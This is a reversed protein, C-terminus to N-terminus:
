LSTKAFSYCLTLKVGNGGDRLISRPRIDCWVVCGFRRLFVASAPPLPDNKGEANTVPFQKCFSRHSEASIFLFRSGLVTLKCRTHLQLAEMAGLLLVGNQQAQFSLHLDIEQGCFYPGSGYGDVRSEGGRGLGTQCSKPTPKHWVGSFFSFIDSSLWDQTRTYLVCPEPGSIWPWHLGNWLCCLLTLHLISWKLCEQICNVGHTLPGNLPRVTILDIQYHYVRKSSNHAAQKNESSSNWFVILSFWESLM